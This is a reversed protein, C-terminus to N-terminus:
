GGCECNKFNNGYVGYPLDLEPFITGRSFGKEVTYLEGLVQYPVYSYGVQFDGFTPYEIPMCEQYM